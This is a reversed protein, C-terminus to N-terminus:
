APLTIAESPCADVCEACGGCDDPNVVKALDDQVQLVDNPCADVCLGCGGCADEDIVPVM